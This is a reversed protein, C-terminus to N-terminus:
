RAAHAKVRQRVYADWWEYLYARIVTKYQKAEADYDDVLGVFLWVIVEMDLPGIIAEVRENTEVGLICRLCDLWATSGYAVTAQAFASRFERSPNLM